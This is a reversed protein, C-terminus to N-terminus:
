GVLPKFQSRTPQSPSGGQGDDKNDTKPSATDAKTNDDSKKDKKLRPKIVLRVPTGRNPIRETFPEFLLAANSQSSEIPLDMTATSFNSVCILEGGEAQYFREGTDEDVWFGSGGFVWDQDLEKKTETNRVWEQARTKQLKDDKDKWYVWVDIVPGTAARYEPDFKVTSGPIAGVRLLGAHVFRAPSFVKIVSEHEKTGQPCAFVELQGQRLCVEGDVVVFKGKASYWVKHDRSLRELEDEVIEPPQPTDANGQPKATADQDQQDDQNETEQKANAPRDDQDALSLISQHPYAILPHAIFGLEHALVQPAAVATVLIAFCATALGSTFRM